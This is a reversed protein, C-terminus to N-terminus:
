FSAKIEFDSYPHPKGLILYILEDKETAAVQEVWLYVGAKYHRQIGIYRVRFPCYLKRITGTHNVLLISNADCYKPVILKNM